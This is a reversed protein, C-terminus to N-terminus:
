RTAAERAAAEEVKPSARQLLPAGHSGKAHARNGQGSKQLQDDSQGASREGVREFSPSMKAALTEVYPYQFMGDHSGEVCHVVSQGAVAQGWQRAM